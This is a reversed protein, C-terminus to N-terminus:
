EVNLHGVGLQHEVAARHRGVVPERPAVEDAVFVVVHLLEVQGHLRACQEVHLIGVCLVEVLCRAVGHRHQVTRERGEVGGIGRHGTSLLYVAPGDDAYKVVLGVLVALVAHEVSQVVHEDVTLLHLRPHHVAADAGIHARIHALADVVAHEVVKVTAVVPEVRADRVTEAALHLEGAVALSVHGILATRGVVVQEAVVPGHLAVEVDGDGHPGHGTAAVLHSQAVGAAARVVGHYLGVHVARGAAYGDVGADRGVVALRSPDLIPHGDVAHAVDAGVELIFALALLVGVSQLVVLVQAVM